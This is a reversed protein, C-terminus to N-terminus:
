FGFINIFIFVLFIRTDTQLSYFLQVCFPSRSLALANRETVVLIFFNFYTDYMKFYFYNMLKNKGQCVMNKHIMESKKM